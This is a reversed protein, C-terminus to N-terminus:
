IITLFDLYDGLQLVEEEVDDYDNLEEGSGLQNELSHEDTLVFPSPGSYGELCYIASIHIHHLNNVHQQEGYHCGLEVALHSDM